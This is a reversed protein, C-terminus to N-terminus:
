LRPREWPVGVRDAATAHQQLRDAVDHVVRSSQIHPVGHIDKVDHTLRKRSKMAFSRILMATSQPVGRGM